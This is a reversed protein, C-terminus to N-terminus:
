HGDDDVFRMAKREDSRVQVLLATKGSGSAGVFEAAQGPRLVPAFWLGTRVPLPASRALYASATEDPMLAAALEPALLTTTTAAM